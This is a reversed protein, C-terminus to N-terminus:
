LTSTATRRHGSLSEGHSSGYLSHLLTLMDVEFVVGGDEHAVFVLQHVLAVTFVTDM